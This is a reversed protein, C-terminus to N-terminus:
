AIAPERMNGRNWNAGLSLLSSNGREPKAPLRSMRNVLEEIRKGLPSSRSVLGCESTAEFTGAYDNPLEIFIPLGLLREVTDRPLEDPCVFARNLILHLREKDYGADMLTQVIKKLQFLALVDLATVLYVADMSQLASLSVSTLARGLDVITWDYQFRVFELLHGIQEEDPLQKCKLRAAGALVDTRPHETSILTSWKTELQASNECADIWSYPCKSKMLLRIIGAEGDLDALLVSGGNQEHVREGLSVAAHCSITTAGCGGKASLFGIVRGKTRPRQHVTVRSLSQALRPDFPPYLFDHAGARFAERISGSEAVEHVIIVACGARVRQIQEIVREFSEELGSGEILIVDPGIRKIENLCEDWPEHSRRNMVVQVPLNSLAKTAQEFSDQNAIVLGVSLRTKLIARGSDEEVSACPQNGPVSVLNRMMAVYQLQEALVFEPPLVNDVLTLLRM